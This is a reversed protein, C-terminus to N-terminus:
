SESDASMMGRQRLERILEVSSKGGFDCPPNTQLNDLLDLLQQKKQAKETLEALASLIKENRQSEDPYCAILGNSINEPVNLILTTM